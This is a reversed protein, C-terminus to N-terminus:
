QEPVLKKLPRIPQEDAWYVGEFDKWVRFSSTPNSTRRFVRNLNDKVVDGAAFNEAKKTVVAESSRIEHSIGYYDSVTLLLGNVSGFIATVTGEITAKVTDGMQPLDMTEEKLDLETTIGVPPYKSQVAWGGGYGEWFVDVAHDYEIVTRAM